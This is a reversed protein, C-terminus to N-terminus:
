SRNPVSRSFRTLVIFDNASAVSVQQSVVANLLQAFGDPRLRLPLKPLVHMASAFQPHAASLWAAGEAVCADSTIVREQM